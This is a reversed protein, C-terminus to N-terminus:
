GRAEFYVADTLCKEQKARLKDDILGLREAPTKVKQDASNVEGKSAVSEGATIPDATAPLSAMPKMDPDSGPMVILPEEGPQWREINELPAGLSSSGFFLSATKVSFGERPAPEAAPGDAGKADQSP